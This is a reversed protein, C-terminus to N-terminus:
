RRALVVSICPLSRRLLARSLTGPDTGRQGHQLHTGGSRRPWTRSPQFCAIARRGSGAASVGCQLRASSPPWLGGAAPQGDDSVRQKALAHPGHMGRWVFVPVAAVTTLLAERTPRCARARVTWFDPRVCSATRVSRWAGVVPLPSSWPLIRPQCPRGPDAAPASTARKSGGGPGPGPGRSQRPLLASGRPRCRSRSVSQNSAQM